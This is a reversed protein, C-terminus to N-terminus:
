RYYGGGVITANAGIICNDGIVPAKGHASGITVNQLILCNAGIIASHSIFIGAIGHPLRPQSKFFAGTNLATGLSAANRAEMKKLKILLFKKILKPTKNQPNTVIFRWKWYKREDYSFISSYLWYTFKNKYRNNMNKLM